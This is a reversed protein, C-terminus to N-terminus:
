LRRTCPGRLHGPAWMHRYRATAPVTHPISAATCAGARSSSRRPGPPQASRATGMLLCPGSWRSAARAATQFSDTACLCSHSPGTHAIAPSGCRNERCLHRLSHTLLSALSALARGCEEGLQVPLPLDGGLLDDRSLPWARSGERTCLHHMTGRSAEAGGLASLSPEEYVM